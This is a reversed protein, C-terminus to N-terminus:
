QCALETSPPRGHPAVQQESAFSNRIVTLLLPQQLQPQQLQENLQFLQRSAVAMSLM